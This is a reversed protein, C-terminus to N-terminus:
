YSSLLETREVAGSRNELRDRSYKGGPRCVISRVHLKCAHIGEEEAFAIGAIDIRIDLKLQPQRQSDIQKSAIVTFPVDRLELPDTGATLMIVQILEQDTLGKTQHRTASDDERSILPVSPGPYYGSRALVQCGPCRDEATISVTLKHFAGEEGANSPAFGLTYQQRLNTIARELAAGFSAATNANLIEGGTESALWRVQNDSEPCNEGSSRIGYLTASTKLMDNRAHDANHQGGINCNDSILIIARRRDPANEVLYEAVVHIADYIFTASDQGKINKIERVIALRDNTLGSLKVPTWDFSYLSVQDEPQLPKLLSLAASKLISLYRQVSSSKDILFAVALPYHGRSFHSIKQPVGNDYIAFDEMQFEPVRTGM